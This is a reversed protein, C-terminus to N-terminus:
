FICVNFFVSFRNVFVFVEISFVIKIVFKYSLGEYNIVVCIWVVLMIVNNGYFGM